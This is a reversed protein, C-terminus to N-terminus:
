VSWGRAMALLGQRESEEVMQTIRLQDPDIHSTIAASVLERLVPADIAEVEVAQGAWSRRTGTAADFYTNKKPNTGVLQLTQVQESTCALRIVQVDPRGSFDRLKKALTLEIEVGAPDLDGVYYIVVPRPDARYEMAAAHAFSASTQGKIPFLPVDWTFTESGIVGAVSESECWVEVRTDANRWLDRRYSASADALMEEVSGWTTPKRMWRSSDVIHTWPIAGSERLLMLDRQVREYGNQTKPFLGKSVARYYVFRVGTPAADAVIEVLAQRRSQLEDTTPRYRRVSGAGYVTDAVM